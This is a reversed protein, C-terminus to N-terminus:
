IQKQLVDLAYLTVSCSLNAMNGCSWYDYLIIVAVLLIYMIICLIYLILYIFLTGICSPQHDYVFVGNVDCTIESSGVNFYNGKCSVVLITGNDVPFQTDTTM